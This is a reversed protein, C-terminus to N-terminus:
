GLRDFLPDRLPRWIRGELPDLDTRTRDLRAFDHAFRQMCAASIAADFADETSSALDQIARTERPLHAQVYLARAVPSSKNVAGTLERPYIEVVLPLRPPDFPWISFGAARLRALYPMGRLSGTGVSGAGGIQFVSKPAIGRVRTTENETQRWAPRADSPAPRAIGPKGWFPHPCYALWEEGRVAVHEWLGRACDLAREDLFWRPFSFAFDIGVVLRPERAACDIVHQVIEARDRGRELRAIRGDRAEALWM